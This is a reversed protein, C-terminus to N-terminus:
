GHGGGVLAEPEHRRLRMTVADTGDAYYRPRRGLRRFGAAEYLRLAADNDARVELFIRTCGADWAHDIACGLLHRGVGSGQEGAAVALTQVDADPRSLYLGVYGVIGSPSEAVAYWRTDGVRSLEDALQTATWATAAFVDQEITLMQDLDEAVAPRVAATM